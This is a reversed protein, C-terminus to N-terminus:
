VQKREEPPAYRPPQSSQACLANIERKLEIMRLERGVMLGNFRQLEANKTRLAEEARKRETIDRAVHVSGILTGKSDFLPTTTVLFDGGLRPEHVEATHARGDRLTQTHPCFDPPCGTGHVHEYCYLGICQDPQVHLRDAMAQNTRVVRHKDDLVAILDPVAQFTREWEEKALRLAEETRHRETIDQVVAILRRPKSGDPRHEFRGTVEVWRVEGDNRRRIRFAVHCPQGPSRAEALATEFVAVDEPHIVESVMELRSLGGEDPGQGFIERMRANGWNARDAAVDWEFVGLDAARLALRLREAGEAVEATREAVRQELSVTVQKLAEEVRKRETIDTFLIAVRASGPGGLRFAYVDFWRQLAAAFNQFRIAEDKLAVWGYIQLWHAEIDPVLERMRRGLAQDLGTHKAFAPNIEVFRYDAAQGDPGYIMEVVCFGEDM